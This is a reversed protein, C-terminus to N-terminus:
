ELLNGKITAPSKLITLFLVSFFLATPYERQLKRKLAISQKKANKKKSNHVLSSITEKISILTKDLFLLLFGAVVDVGWAVDEPV